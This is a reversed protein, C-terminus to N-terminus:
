RFLGLQRRNLEEGKLPSLSALPGQSPSPNYQTAFELGMGGQLARKRKCVCVAECASLMSESVGAVGGVRGKFPLSNNTAVQTLNVTDIHASTVVQVTSLFTYPIVERNIRRRGRASRRQRESIYSAVSRKPSSRRKRGGPIYRM